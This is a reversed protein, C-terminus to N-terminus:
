RGGWLRRAEAADISRYLAPDVAPFEFARDAVPSGDPEEIRLELKGGGALRAEVREPWLAGWWVRLSAVRQPQAGVLLDMVDAPALPVGFLADFEEASSEGRYVAGEGPFLAMLQGERALAQMRVGGPGPIEVFLRDPRRFALLSSVRGRVGRGSISIRVAASYHPSAHARSM